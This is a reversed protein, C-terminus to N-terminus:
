DGNRRQGALFLIGTINELLRFCNGDVGAQPLFHLRNALSKLRDQVETSFKRLSLAFRRLEEPDVIAQPM